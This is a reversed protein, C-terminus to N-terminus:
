WIMTKLSIYSKWVSLINLNLGIIALLNTWRFRMYFPLIVPPKFCKDCFTALFISTCPSVLTSQGTVPQLILFWSGKQKAVHDYRLIKWSVLIQGRTISLQQIHLRNLGLNTLVPSMIWSKFAQKWYCWHRKLM